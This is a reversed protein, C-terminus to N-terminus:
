LGLNNNECLMPPEIPKLYKNLSVDNLHEIKQDCAFLNMRGTGSTAAMLNQLFDDVLEEPVDAPIYAEIPEM